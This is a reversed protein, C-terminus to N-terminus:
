RRGWPTSAGAAVRRLVVGSVLVDLEREARVSREFAKAYVRKLMADLTETLRRTRMRHKPRRRARMM